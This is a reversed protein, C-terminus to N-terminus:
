EVRREMSLDIISILLDNAEERKDLPMDTVYSCGYTWCVIKRANDYLPGWGILDKEKRIKEMHKSAKDFYRQGVIQRESGKKLVYGDALLKEKFEQYEKETM